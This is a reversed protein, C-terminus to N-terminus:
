PPALGDGPSVQRLDPSFMEIKVKRHSRDTSTLTVGSNVARDQIPLGSEELLGAGVM